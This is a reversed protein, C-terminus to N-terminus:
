SPICSLPASRMHVESCMITGRGIMMVYITCPPSFCALVVLEDAALFCHAPGSSAVEECFSDWTGRM